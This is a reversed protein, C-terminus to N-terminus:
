ICIYRRVSLAAMQTQRQLPLGREGIRAEDVDLGAGVRSKTKSLLTTKLISFSKLVYRKNARDPKHGLKGSKKGGLAEEDRREEAISLTLGLTPIRQEPRPM